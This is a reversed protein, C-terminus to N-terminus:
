SSLLKCATYSLYLLIDLALTQKRCPNALCYTYYVAGKHHSELISYKGKGSSPSLELDIISWGQNSATMTVM